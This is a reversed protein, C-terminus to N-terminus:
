RATFCSYHRRLSGRWVSISSCAWIGCTHLTVKGYQFIYNGSYSRSDADFRKASFASCQVGTRASNGFHFPFLSARSSCFPFIMYSAAGTGGVVCINRSQGPPPGPLTSPLTAAQVADEGFRPLRFYAPESSRSSRRPGVICCTSDRLADLSALRQSARRRLKKQVDTVDNSVSSDAVPPPEDQTQYIDARDRKKRDKKLEKVYADYDPDSYKRQARARKKKSM